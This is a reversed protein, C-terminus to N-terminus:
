RFLRRTRKSAPRFGLSATQFLRSAPALRFLHSAKTNQFNLQTVTSWNPLDASSTPLVTSPPCPEQFNLSPVLFWNSRSLSQSNRERTGIGRTTIALIRFLALAVGNLRSQIGSQLKIPPIPSSSFLGWPRLHSFFTM